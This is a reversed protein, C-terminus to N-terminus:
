AGKFLAFLILSAGHCVPAALLFSDCMDLMGGFEPLLSGSDKVGAWRKFASKVLDGVQGAM